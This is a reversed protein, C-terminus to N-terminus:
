IRTRRPFPLLSPSTGAEGLSSAASRPLTLVSLEFSEIPVVAAQCGAAIPWFSTQRGGMQSLFLVPMIRRQFLNPTTGLQLAMRAVWSNSLVDYRLNRRADPTCPSYRRCCWRISEDSEFVSGRIRSGRNQLPSSKYGPWRVPRYMWVNAKITSTSVHFSSDLAVQFLRRNVCPNRKLSM